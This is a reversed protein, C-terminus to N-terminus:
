FDGLLAFVEGRWESRVAACAGFAVVGCLAIFEDPTNRTVTKADTVLYNLLIRVEGPQESVVAALLNSVDSVLELNARSGPLRSQERLYFELPRQNGALAREVLSSLTDYM